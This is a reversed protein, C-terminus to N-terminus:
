YHHCGSAYSWRGSVLYGGHCATATGPPFLAGALIAEPDDGFMQKAAADPLFAGFLGVVSGIFTCWGTSGDIHSIEEIVHYLTQPPVEFGGLAKPVYMRFLGAKKLAAVVPQSLHHNREAEETHARILPALTRVASLFTDLQQVANDTM